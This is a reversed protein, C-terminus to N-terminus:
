GRWGVGVGVGSGVCVQGKFNRANWIKRLLEGFRGVLTSNCHKYNDPTLFYDRCLPSHLTAATLRSHPQLGPRWM